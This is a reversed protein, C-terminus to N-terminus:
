GGVEEDRVQFEVPAIVQASTMDEGPKLVTVAAGLRRIIEIEADAAAKIGSWGRAGKAADKGAHHILVVVAGTAAALARANALALGMDEGANENAGPTVQAFTDVVIVDAGGSATVARVLESIDDTLM